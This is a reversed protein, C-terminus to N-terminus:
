SQEGAPIEITFVSGKPHNDRVTIRGGHDIAIKGAIALGLGTGGKRKSFYPLFLKEKEDDPIGPGTDAIDISVHHDTSRLSVNLEGSHKMAEIANDIINVLARKIQERDINIKPIGAQLDVHIKIDKYGKYLAIVSDVLDVPDAQAKTIEPMKGYKSFIDVLRKLGEVESIITETSKEFVTGFDEDKNAWKKILRETSLKIPTLPNKIEHAIRRAVEQWAEAKQAKIVDTLDDFVVLMGVASSSYSERIGSITVRLIMPRGEPSVKVERSLERVEKGELDRIMRALDDSNLADILKRYDTGILASEDLVLIRCASKNIMLITGSKDLFIVGSTINQLINELYLRRRDSELYAHELSIKNDRLQAVMQNFSDILLGIEDKSTVKVSVNLDGSAVKETAMALGQIPITIDRSIKLSFWLGSFVMILTLFGLTLMYTLSLPKKLQGRKLYDEYLARLKESKAAIAAPIVTEAVVAGGGRAAPVAARVTDGDQMSIIETGERGAFAEKLVDDADPPLAHLRRIFMGPESVPDEKAAKRAAGLMREREYDYFARALEISRSIPEGIQPSFIRNFYDTALGSAAAFLFLSPIMILTVFIAALKTRFKYGPVKFRMDMFLRYLNKGVFFILTLLAAINFTLLCTLIIRTTIDLSPLKIFHIQIATIVVICLVLALTIALPRLINM